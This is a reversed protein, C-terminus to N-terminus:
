GATQSAPAAGGAAVKGSKAVYPHVAEARRWVGANGNPPDYVCLATVRLGSLVATVREEYSWWEENRFADKGAYGVYRLPSSTREALSTLLSSTKALQGDATLSAGEGYVDSNSAIELRGTRLIGDGAGAASMLARRVRRTWSLPMVCICDEGARLGALLYWAITEVTDEKSAPLLCIHSGRPLYADDFGLEVGGNSKRPDAPEGDTVQQVQPLSYYGQRGDEFQVVVFLRGIESVTGVTGAPIGPLVISTRVEDGIRM